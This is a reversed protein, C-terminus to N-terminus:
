DSRIKEDEILVRLLKSEPTAEDLTCLTRDLVGNLGEVTRCAATDCDTLLSLRRRETATLRISQGFRLM